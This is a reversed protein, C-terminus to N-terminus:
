QFIEIWILLAGITTLHSSAVESDYHQLSLDDISTLHASGENGVSGKLDRWGVYQCVVVVRGTCETALGFTILGILVLIHLSM